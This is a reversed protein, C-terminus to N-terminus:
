TQHRQLQEILGRSFRQARTELWLSHSITRAPGAAGFFIALILGLLAVGYGSLQGQSASIRWLAILSVAIGAAPLIWLIPGVLAAASLLGFAVSVIAWGSVRHYEVVYRDIQPSLETQAM